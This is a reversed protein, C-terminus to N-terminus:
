KRYRGERGALIVGLAHVRAWYYIWYLAVARVFPVARRTQMMRFAVTLAPALLQLAACTTLRWGISLSDDFLAAVGVVSAALHLLMMATPRDIRRLTATGFMGLGHWVTRRYFARVSKPNGLHVAGVRTSERMRMGADVLRRGLESDEGTVLDERFGGIREFADRRVFFNASNLYHVDRDRGQYHMRDWVAEIWHPTPPVEVECGTAAAGTSRLVDIAELFYEEAITCDADLFSLFDGSAANAGANRIAAITGRARIVRLEQADFSSLFEFSGDTSGDDVYICEVDGAARAAALVTPVTTPLFAMADHVPVVVSVCANGVSGRPERGRAAIAGVGPSTEADSRGTM